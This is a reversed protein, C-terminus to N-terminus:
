ENTEIKRERPLRPMDQPRERTPPPKLGDPLSAPPQEEWCFAKDIQEQTLGKAGLLDADSLNSGFLSAGTFDIGVLISYTFDTGRLNFYSLDDHGFFLYSLNTSQLGCLDKKEDKSLPAAIRALTKVAIEIDIRKNRLELEKTYKKPAVERIRASLIQTIKRRDQRRTRAIQELSSIGILRISSKEDALQEVAHTLADASLSQEAIMATAKATIVDEEAAKTRRALFYWGVIGAVLLILNRGIDTNKYFLVYASFGVVIVVIACILISVVLASVRVRYTQEKWWLFQETCWESIQIKLGITWQWIERMEM